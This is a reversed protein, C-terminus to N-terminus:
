RDACRSASPGARAALARTNRAWRHDSDPLARARGAESDRAKRPRVADTPRRACDSRRGREDLANGGSAYEAASGSGHDAAAAAAKAREVACEAQPRLGAVLEEVERKSRHAAAALVERHNEPTLHQRLLGVTTLNLTGAELMELVAPYQRAARAAEIRGYAAHESLHLVRTCYTFLSSCGAGLYLRRVDLEALLAVLRACAQPEHRAAEVVEILLRDDPLGAPDIDNSMVRELMTM